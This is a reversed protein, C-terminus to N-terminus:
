IFTDSYIYIVYNNYYLSIDKLMLKQNEHKLNENLNCM